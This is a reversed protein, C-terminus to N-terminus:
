AACAGRERRNPRKPPSTAPRKSRLRTRRPSMRRGPLAPPRMPRDRPTRAVQRDPVNGKAGEDGPQGPHEVKGTRGCRARRCRRVRVARRPWSGPCPLWNRFGRARGPGRRCARRRPRCPRRRGASRSRRRTPTRGGARAADRRPIRRRPRLGPWPGFGALTASFEATQRHELAHQSRGHHEVDPAEWHDRHHRYDAGILKVQRREVDATSALMSPSPESSPANRNAAKARRRGTGDVQIEEAHEDVQHRGHTERFESLATSDPPNSTASPRDSAAKAAMCLM